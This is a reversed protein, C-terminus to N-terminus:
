LGGPVEGYQVVILYLVSFYYVQMRGEANLKREVQVRGQSQLSNIKLRKKEIGSVCM